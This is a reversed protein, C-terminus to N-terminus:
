LLVEQYAKRLVGKEKEWCLQGKAEQLNKKIRGYLEKDTRLREVCENIEEIDEPNCTLGVGYRDVLERMAPYFPCIVPTESQINEFFKNPLSYLHNESIAPALILGADVAGVIRWLDQNKVAPYFLLRAGLGDEEAKSRLREIYSEEGDGLIVGAINGNMKLLEILSEIGRGSTVAGHYMVIFQNM